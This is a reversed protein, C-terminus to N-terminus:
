IGHQRRFRSGFLRRNRLREWVVAEAATPNRRM